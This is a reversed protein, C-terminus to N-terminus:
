LADNSGDLKTNAENKFKRGSPVIGAVAWAESPKFGCLDDCTNMVDSGADDDLVNVRNVLVGTTVLKPPVRGIGASVLFRITKANPPASNPPPFVSPEM